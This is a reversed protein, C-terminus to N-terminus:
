RLDVLMNVCGFDSEKIGTHAAAMDQDIGKIYQHLNLFLTTVGLPVSCTGNHLVIQKAQINIGSGCLKGGKGYSHFSPLIVPPEQGPM